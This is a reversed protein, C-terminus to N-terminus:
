RPERFPARLPWPVHLVTIGLNGVLALVMSFDRTRM